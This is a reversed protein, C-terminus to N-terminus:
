DMTDFDHPRGTVRSCIAALTRALPRFYVRPFVYGHERTADFVYYRQVFM